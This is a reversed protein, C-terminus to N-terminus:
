GGEVAQHKLKQYVLIHEVQLGHAVGQGAHQEFTQPFLFGFSKPRGPTLNMPVGYVIPPNLAILFDM